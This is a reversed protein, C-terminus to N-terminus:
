IAGKRKWRAITSISCGVQKAIEATELGQMVLEHAQIQKRETEALALAHAPIGHKRRQNAMITRVHSDSLGYTEAIEAISVGEDTNLHYIKEDRDMYSQAQKADVDRSSKRFCCSKGAPYTESLSECRGDPTKAFCERPDNCRPLSQFTM